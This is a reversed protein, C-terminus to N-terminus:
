SANILQREIRRLLTAPIFPKSVVDNAGCEIITNYIDASGSIVIVPIHSTLPNQKISKCIEKGDAHELFLDLLIVDPEFDKLIDFINVADPADKVEYGADLLLIKISERVDDEDEVLVIKKQLDKAPFISM